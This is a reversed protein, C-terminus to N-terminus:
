RPIVVGHDGKEGRDELDGPPEGGDDIGNYSITYVKYGVPLREYRLPAGDFPDIPVEDLFAPVLADLAEPLAGHENRYREIAIATYVCRVEAVTHAELCFRLFLSGVVTDDLSYAFHGELLSRRLIGRGERLAEVDRLGEPLAKRSAALCKEAAELYGCLALPYSISKGRSRKKWVRRLPWRRTFANGSDSLAHVVSIREFLLVRSLHDKCELAGIATNLDRLQEEALVHRQVLYATGWLSFRLAVLRAGWTSTAPDWELSRALAAQDLLAAIATDLDDREAAWVVRQMLLRSAHRMAKWPFDVDSYPGESYDTVYRCQEYGAAEHFLALAEANEALASEIQAAAEPPLSAGSPDGVAFRASRVRELLDEEEERIHLADLARRYVEAGNEAEPLDPLWAEFEECTVPEGRQRAAELMSRAEKLAQLKMAFYAGICLVAAAIVVKGWRKM